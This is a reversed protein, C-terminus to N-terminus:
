TGVLRDSGTNHLQGLIIRHGARDGVGELDSVGVVANVQRQDLIDHVVTTAGCERRAPRELRGSRTVILPVEPEDATVFAVAWGPSKVSESDSPGEPYVADAHDHELLVTVALATENTAPSETVQVIM